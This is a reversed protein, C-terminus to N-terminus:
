EGKFTILDLDGKALFTSVAAKHDATAALVGQAMSERDLADALSGEVARNALLKTLGLALPAKRALAACYSVAGADFDGDVIQAVFGLEKGEEATFRHGSLLAEKARHLGIAQSLLYTGGMDPMLGIRVFSQQFWATPAALVIDSVLALNFGAGSAIGNVAAVVPKQLNAIGETIQRGFTLVANTESPTRTGMGRVDGGACFARGTGTLLVVRTEHDLAVARLAEVLAAKVGDDLANLTDAGNLRMRLVGSAPRDLDLATM